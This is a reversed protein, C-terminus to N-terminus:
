RVSKALEEADLLQCIADLTPTQQSGCAQCLPKGDHKRNNAFGEPVCFEPEGKIERKCFCCTTKKAKKKTGMGM